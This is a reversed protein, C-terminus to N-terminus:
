KQGILEALLKNESIFIPKEINPPAPQDFRCIQKKLRDINGFTGVREVCALWDARKSVNKFRDFPSCFILLVGSTM